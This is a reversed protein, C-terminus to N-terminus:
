IGVPRRSDFQKPPDSSWKFLLIRCNFVGPLRQLEQTESGLQITRLKHEHCIYMHIYMFTSSNIRMYMYMHTHVYRYMHANTYRYIYSYIYFTRVDCVCLSRSLPMVFHLYRNLANNRYMIRYWYIRKPGGPKGVKGVASSTPSPAERSALGSM